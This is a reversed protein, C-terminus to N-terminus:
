GAQWGRSVWSTWPSGAAEVELHQRSCHCELQRAHDWPVSLQVVIVIRRPNSHHLLHYPDRHVPPQCAEQSRHHGTSEPAVPWHQRDTDRGRRVVLVKTPKHIDNVGPATITEVGCSTARVSTRLPIAINRFTETGTHKVRSQLKMRANQSWPVKLDSTNEKILWVEDARSACSWMMKKTRWICEAFGSGM